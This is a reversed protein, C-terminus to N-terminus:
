PNKQGLIQTKIEQLASNLSEISENLQRSRSNLGESLIANKQTMKDQENVATSIQDVGNAQEKASQAIQQASKLTQEIQVLIQDYNQNIEESVESSKVVHGSIDKIITNISQSESLSRNALTRVAEAVVAFGKGHEGARAAEVSANLALLNTQTSIDQITDVITGMLKSNESLAQNTMKFHVLKEKMIEALQYSNKSNQMTKESDVENNKVLSSIETLSASTEEIASASESTANSLQHSDDKLNDAITNIQSFDNAIKDIARETSQMIKKNFLYFIVSGLASLLLIVVIFLNRSNNISQFINDSSCRVIVGWGIQDLFKANSIKTWAGIQEINKRVHFIVGSGEKGQVLDNAAILHKEALNLKLNASEFDHIITDTKNYSPDYETILNGKADILQIETEKFGSTSANKYVSILETEAWNFDARATLVGLPNNNIDLVLTSFATTLRKKGLATEILPDVQVNTFYTNNFGKQTDKTWDKQVSKQHWIEHAYQAASLKNIQINEGSASKSNSTIYKGNLDTFLILDYVGYISVYQDLVLKIREPNSQQFVINKSFAQVDGYREFFQTAIKDSLEHSYSIFLKAFLEKQKSVSILYLTISFVSSLIFISLFIVLSKKELSWNKM